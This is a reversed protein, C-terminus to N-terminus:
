TRLFAFAMPSENILARLKAMSPSYGRRTIPGHQIGNESPYTSGECEVFIELAKTSAIGRAM